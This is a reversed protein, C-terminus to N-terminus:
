KLIFIKLDSIKLIIIKFTFYELYFNSKYQEATTKCIHKRKLIVNKLFITVVRTNVTSANNLIISPIFNVM